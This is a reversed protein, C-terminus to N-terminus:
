TVKSFPSRDSSAFRAFSISYTTGNLCTRYRNEKDLYANLTPKAINWRVLDFFQHGEM